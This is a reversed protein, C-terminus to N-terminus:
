KNQYEERAPTFVDILECETLAKGSHKINSPIIIVENEKLVKKKSEITLEFVGRKVYLCQEHPHNHLPVTSNKKVNWFALSMKNGHVFKGLFGPIIENELIKNLKNIKM